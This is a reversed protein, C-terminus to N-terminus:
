ALTYMNAQAKYAVTLLVNCHFSNAAWINFVGSLGKPICFKSYAFSAYYYTALLMFSILLIKAFPHAFFPKIYSWGCSLANCVARVIASAADLFRSM